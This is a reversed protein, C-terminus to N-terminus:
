FSGLEQWEQVALSSERGLEFHSRSFHHQCPRAGGVAGVGRVMVVVVVKLSSCGRRLGLGVSAM